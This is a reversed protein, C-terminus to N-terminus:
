FTLIPLSLIRKNENKWETYTSTNTPYNTDWTEVVVEHQVFMKWFRFFGRVVRTKGTRGKYYTDIVDSMPM